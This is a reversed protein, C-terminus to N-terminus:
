SLNSNAFALKFFISSTRKSFFKSKFHYLKKVVMVIISIGVKIKKNIKKNSNWIIQGCVLAYAPVRPPTLPLCTGGGEIKSGFLTWCNKLKLCLLYRKKHTNLIRSWSYFDELNFCADYLHDVIFYLLM